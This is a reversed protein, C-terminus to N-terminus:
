YLRERADKEVYADIAEVPTDTKLVDRTRMRNVHAGNSSTAEASMAAMPHLAARSGGRVDRSREDRGGSGADM